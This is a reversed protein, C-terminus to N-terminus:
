YFLVTLESICKSSVPHDQFTGEETQEFIFDTIKLPTNYYHRLPKIFVEYVTVITIAVVSM